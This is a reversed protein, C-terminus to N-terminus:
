RDRRHMPLQGVIGAELNLLSCSSQHVLILRTDDLWTAGTPWSHPTTIEHREGEKLKAGLRVVASTV